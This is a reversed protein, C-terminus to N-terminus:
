DEKLKEKRNHEISMVIIIGIVIIIWNATIITGWVTLLMVALTGVWAKTNISRDALQSKSNIKVIKCLYAIIVFLLYTNYLVGALIPNTGVVLFYFPLGYLPATRNIFSVM